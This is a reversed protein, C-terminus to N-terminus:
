DKEDADFIDMLSDEMMDENQPLILSVDEDHVEKFEEPKVEKKKIVKAGENFTFQAYDLPNSNSRMNRKVGEERDNVPNKQHLKIELEKEVAKNKLLAAKLHEQDQVLMRKLRKASQIEQTITQLKIQYEDCKKKLKEQKKELKSMNSSANKPSSLTYCIDETKKSTIGLEEIIKKLNKDETVWFEDCSLDRNPFNLIGETSIEPQPERLMNNGRQYESALNNCQSMLNQIDRYLIEYKKELKVLIGVMAEGKKKLLEKQDQVSLMKEKSKNYLEVDRELISNRSQLDKIIREKYESEHLLDAIKKEYDKVLAEEKSQSQSLLQEREAAIKAAENRSLINKRLREELSRKETLLSEFLRSSM